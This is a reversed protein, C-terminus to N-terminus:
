DLRRVVHVDFDQGGAQGNPAIELEGEADGGLFVVSADVEDAIRRVQSSVGGEPSQATADTFNLEADDTAEEIKRRLDHLASEAAFDDDPEIWTRRPAFDAGTPMLAVALVDQDLARGYTVARDLATRAPGSGDFPVLFVM